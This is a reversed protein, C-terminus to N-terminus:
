TPPTRPKWRKALKLVEFTLEDIQSIAPDFTGGCWRKMQDHDPHGTDALAALFEEYGPFGGVDEPPCRGTAKTLRPSLEGPVPNTMNGVKISHGWNDGFDYNYRLTKVGTDELVDLLTSKSALQDNSGFGPDPLGWTVGDAEFLYLHTNTWGMAAQLLLHLRDLRTDVPVMLTRTVTPEVDDLTLELEVINM